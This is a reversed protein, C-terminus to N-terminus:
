GLPWIGKKAPPKPPTKPAERKPKEERMAPAPADLEEVEVQEVLGARRDEELASLRMAHEECHECCSGHAAQAVELAVEAAAAAEGAEERAEQAVEAAAGAVLAVTVDAAAEQAQVAPPEGGDEVVVITPESM